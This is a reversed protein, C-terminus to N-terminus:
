FKYNFRITITRGLEDAYYRFRNLYERYSTNLLNTCELFIEYDNDFLQSGYGINLGVLQYGAPPDVYDIGEPFRNQRRVASYSASASFTKKTQFPYNWTISHQMRDSPMFILFDDKTVDKARILSGKLDYQWQSSLQASLSLDAGAMFADTQVYSYVPFAGRITLRPEDQPQLYIYNNIRQAYASLDVTWRGKRLLLQNIWKFAQETGLETNGEEITAAGHHLGQSYLESVNPPRWASGLNSTLKWGDAPKLVVGVTGSFNNFQYRPRIVEDNEDFTFVQFSRNDFRLGAEVEWRDEMWREIMFIGTTASNYNPILPKIGTGPVNRNEQYIFSSGVQGRLKQWTRQDWILDASHTLLDMDLAPKEGRGGRRVDFEKRLNRQYGYVLKLDGLRGKKALTTKALDHSIVQRPNNIKYSFDEVILPRESQFAAELDTLNGIHASRLIGLETAFRSYYAEALWDNKKYGIAGSFDVERLGTNTLSYDPASFDGARRGTGQLRWAMTKSKGLGGQLSGSASGMRGNDSGMLRVNGHLHKHQYPLAPPEVVVIGGIAEPGYRVAAAGKVVSIQTAMMPDIEPAHETGWQQGEQRLGNNLILIRNSHLGNIIPKSITPGTKLSSVGPLDQLSEGLSKGSSRALEAESLSVESQTKDPAIAEGEVTVEDILMQDEEMLVFLENQQPLTIQIHKEVYGLYHIDATFTGACLGDIKFRGKEDTTTGKEPGVLWIAAIPLAEKTKMDIVTGQFSLHCDEAQAAVHCTSILQLIGAFFIVVRSLITSHGEIAAFSSSPIELHLLTAFFLPSYKNSPLFAQNDPM